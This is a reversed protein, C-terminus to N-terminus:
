AFSKGMDLESVVICVQPNMGPLAFLTFKTPDAPSGSPVIPADGGCGRSYGRKFDGM